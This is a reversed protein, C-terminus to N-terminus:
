VNPVPINGILKRIIQESTMGSSKAGISLVMRHMLVPVAVAKVDDLQAVLGGEASLFVHVHQHLHGGEAARRVKVGARVGVRM